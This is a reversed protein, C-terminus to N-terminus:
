PKAKRKKQKTIPRKVMVEGIANPSFCMLKQWAAMKEDDLTSKYTM